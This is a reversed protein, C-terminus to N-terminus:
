PNYLYAAQADNGDGGALLLKGDELEVVGHAARGGPVLVDPLPVFAEVQPDFLECSEQPTGEADVGGCVLFRDDALRTVSFDCRAEAMRVDMAEWARTSPDYVEASDLVTDVDEGDAACGGFAVVRGQPDDPIRLMGFAARAEKLGMEDTTDVGGPTWVECEETSVDGSVTRRWGGCILVAGDALQQTRHQFRAREMQGGLVAQGVLVDIVLYDSSPTEAGSQWQLGGSLLLRGDAMVTLEPRALEVPLDFAAAITDTAPDFADVEAIMEDGDVAGEWGAMILVQGDYPSSARDVRHLVAGLRHYDPDVEVFRYEGGGSLELREVGPATQDVPYSGVRGGIVLGDGDRLAAMAPEVRRMSLEGAVQGFQRRRSFYVSLETASDIAVPTSLGNALELANDENAPDYGLGRFAVIALGSETSPPVDGIQWEGSEVPASYYTLSPSAEYELAMELVDLDEFPDQDPPPILSVRLDFSSGGGPCGSALAAWAAALTLPAMRVVWSGWDFSAM